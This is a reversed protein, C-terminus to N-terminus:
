RWCWVGAGEDPLLGVVGQVRKSRHEHESAWHRWASSHLAPPAYLARQERSGLPLVM